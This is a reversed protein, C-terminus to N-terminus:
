LKKYIEQCFLTHFCKNSNEWDSSKNIKLRKLPFSHGLVHNEANEVHVIAFHNLAKGGSIGLPVPVQRYISMSGNTYCMRIDSHSLMVPWDQQVRKIMEKMYMEMIKVKKRPMNNFLSTGLLHYDIDREESRSTKNSKIGSVTHWCAQM